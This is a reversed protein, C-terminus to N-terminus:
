KMDAQSTEREGEHTDEAERAAEKVLEDATENGDIEAYGRTWQIKVETGSQQLDTM